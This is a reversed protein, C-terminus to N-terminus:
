CLYAFLLYIIFLLQKRERDIGEIIPWSIQKESGGEM